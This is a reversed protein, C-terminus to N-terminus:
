EAWNELEPARADDDEGPLPERGRSWLEIDEYSRPDEIPELHGLVQLGPFEAVLEDVLDELLDHGHQITWGGPVLMHFELFSRSGSIRTRMAHFRVSPGAYSDLVARIRAHDEKSMSEDLLGRSSEGLLRGGTILINLGVLMAVLPDLWPWGTVWVLGVGLLVGVSTVVDTMLHKGDARLTISNHKRGADTLVLAVGGNILSALLSILLGIGISEIPRPHILRDVSFYIIASAAVIIMLGEVAASFYEAKTRGYHFAKDAPKAALTLAILAVVAAILNVVSEAADSLLGVSGTIWWAGAKLTITAVAAAISLWAYRTLNPSAMIM